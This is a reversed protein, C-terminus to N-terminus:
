LVVAEANLAKKKPKGNVPPRIRLKKKCLAMWYRPFREQLLAILFLYLWVRVCVLVFAYVLLAEQENDTKILREFQFKM